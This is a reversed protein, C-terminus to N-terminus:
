KVGARQFEILADWKVARERLRDIEQRQAIVRKVLEGRFSPAGFYESSPMVGRQFLGDLAVLMDDAQERMTVRQGLPDNGIM